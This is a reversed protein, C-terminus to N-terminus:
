QLHTSNYIVPRIPRSRSKMLNFYSWVMMTLTFMVIIYLAVEARARTLYMWIEKIPFYAEFLENVLLRGTCKWQPTHTHKLFHNCVGIQCVKCKHRTDSQCCPRATTPKLAQMREVPGVVRHCGRTDVVKSWQTCGCVVVDRFEDQTLTTQRSM